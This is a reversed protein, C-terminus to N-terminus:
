LSHEYKRHRFKAALFLRAKKFWNTKGLQVYPVEEYSVQNQNLWVALLLEGVRGVYRREFPTMGSDDVMQDLEDLIPFLWACYACFHERSMVFMNFMHASTQELMNQYSELYEPCQRGIIEETLRLHEGDHTHDYHSYITEIAYRRKKPLIADVRGLIQEATKKKLIRDRRDRGPVTHFPGPEALYRRYHVMGIYDADLNKWAWYVGTLESYKNNKSSINDGVDDGQYDLTKDSIAKGAFLPLYMENSPVWHPKHIAVLIKIDM